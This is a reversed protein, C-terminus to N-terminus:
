YANALAFKRSARNVALLGITPPIVLSPIDSFNEKTPYFAFVVMTFCLAILLVAYAFLTTAKTAHIKVPGISVDYADASRSNGEENLLFKAVSTPLW